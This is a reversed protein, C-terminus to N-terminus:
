KQDGMARYIARGCSACCIDQPAVPLPTVQVPAGGCCACDATHRDLLALMEGTWPAACFPCLPGEAAADKAFEGAVTM